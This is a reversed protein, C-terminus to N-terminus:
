NEQWANVLHEPMRWPRIILLDFRMEFNAFEAKKAVFLSASRIIRQQQRQSLIEGTEGNKRAKVEAFVLGRGRRAIIDIEGAKNRYRKNIVRYGKCTLYIIAIIEAFIGFRYAKIKKRSMSTIIAPNIL